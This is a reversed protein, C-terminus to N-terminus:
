VEFLGKLGKIYLHKTPLNICGFSESAILKFNQM